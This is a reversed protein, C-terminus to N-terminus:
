LKWGQTNFSNVNNMRHCRRLTERLIGGHSYEGAGAVPICLASGDEPTPHRLGPPPPAPPLPPLQSISIIDEKVFLARLQFFVVRLTIRNKFTEQNEIKLEIYKEKKNRDLVGCKTYIYVEIFNILQILM